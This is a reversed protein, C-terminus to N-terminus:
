SMRRVEVFIKFGAGTNSSGQVAGAGRSGGGRASGSTGLGRQQRRGAQQRANTGNAGTVRGGNEDGQAAATTTAQTGFTRLAFSLLPRVCCDGSTMYRLATVSSVVPPQLGTIGKFM